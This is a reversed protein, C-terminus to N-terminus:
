ATLLTNGLSAAHICITTYRIINSGVLESHGKNRSTYKFNSRNIIRERHQVLKTKSWRILASFKLLHYCKLPVDRM